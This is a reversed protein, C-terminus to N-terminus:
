IKVVLSREPTIYQGNVPLLPQWGTGNLNTNWAQKAIIKVGCGLYFPPIINPYNQLQERTVYTNGTLYNCIDKDKEPIEYCYTQLGTVDGDEIVKINSEIM